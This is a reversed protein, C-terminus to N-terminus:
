INSNNQLEPRNTPENNLRNKPITKNIGASVIDTFYDLKDRCTPLDMM